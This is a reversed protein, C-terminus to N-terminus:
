HYKRDRTFLPWSWVFNHPQGSEGLNFGIKFNFSSSKNCVFGSYYNKLFTIVTDCNGYLPFSDRYFVKASSTSSPSFKRSYGRFRSIQLLKRERFNGVICYECSVETTRTNWWTGIHGSVKIWRNKDTARKKQLSGFVLVDIQDQRTQSVHKDGGHM